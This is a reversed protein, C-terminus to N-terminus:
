RSAALIVRTLRYIWPVPVMMALTGALPSSAGRRVIGSWALKKGLLSQCQALYEYVPLKRAAALGALRGTLVANLQGTGTFPDVFALADGAPYVKALHEGTFRNAYQLPGTKLWDMTRSLGMLRDRLAEQSDLFEDIQFGFRRLVSEPGLGCVNTMGGEVPNVGVYCGDFFHLAVSDDAPGAYHAKFGFVRDVGRPDSMSALVGRGRADVAGEPLPGAEGRVFRAGRGLAARLLLEDFRYRSLGYAEQPLRDERVRHGFVLRVRQMVAPKCAFLEGAVGLDELVPVIEPSLFEGCVKHRPFAARDRLEVTAGARLASLAAASGAPGAGAIVVPRDPYSTSSTPAFEEM